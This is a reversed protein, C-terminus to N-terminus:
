LERNFVNRIRLMRLVICMCYTAKESDMRAISVM